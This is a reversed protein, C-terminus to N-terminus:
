IRFDFMSKIKEGLMNILYADLVRIPITTRQYTIGGDFSRPAYEVRKVEVPIIERKSEKNKTVM